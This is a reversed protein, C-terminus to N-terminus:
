TPKLLMVSKKKQQKQRTPLTSNSTKRTDTAFVYNRLEKKEEMWPRRRDHFEQWDNSVQSALRDRDIINFIEQVKGSM